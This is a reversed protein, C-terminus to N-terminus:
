KNVNYMTLITRFTQCYALITKINEGETTEDVQSVAYEKVDIHNSHPADIGTPLM